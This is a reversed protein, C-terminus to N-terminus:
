GAAPAQFLKMLELNSPAESGAITCCDVLHLRLGVFGFLEVQSTRLRGLEPRNQGDGTRTSGKQTVSLGGSM